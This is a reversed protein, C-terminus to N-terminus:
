TADDSIAEAIERDLDAVARRLADAQRALSRSEALDTQEDSLATWAADADVAALEAALQDREAM